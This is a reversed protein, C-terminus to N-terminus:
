SVWSRAILSRTSFASFIDNCCVGSLSGLFDNTFFAVSLHHILVNNVSSVSNVLNGLNNHRKGSCILRLLSILGTLRSNIGNEEQALDHSPQLYVLSDLSERHCRHGDDSWIRHYSRRGDM